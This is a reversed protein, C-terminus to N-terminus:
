RTSKRAVSAVRGARDAAAIWGREILLEALPVLKRAAWAACAEAFQSTDILDSQLALVGFFLNRDTNM